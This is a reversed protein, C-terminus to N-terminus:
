GTHPGPVALCPDGMQRTEGVWTGVADITLIGHGSGRRGEVRARVLGVLGPLLPYVSSLFVGSTRAVVATKPVRHSKHDSFRKQRWPCPRDELCRPPFQGARGEGSDKQVRARGRWQRGNGPGM